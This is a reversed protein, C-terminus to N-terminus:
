QVTSFRADKGVDKGVGDGGDGVGLLLFGDPRAIGLFKNPDFDLESCDQSLDWDDIDLM